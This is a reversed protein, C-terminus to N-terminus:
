KLFTCQSVSTFVVAHPYFSVLSRCLWKWPIFSLKLYNWFVDISGNRGFHVSAQIFHRLKLVSLCPCRLFAARALVAWFWPQRPPIQNSKTDSEIRRATKKKNNLLILFLPIIICGGVFFIFFSSFFMIFLFVNKKCFCCPPNHLIWLILLRTPAFATLTSLNLDKDFVNPSTKIHVLNISFSKVHMFIKRSFTEIKAILCIKSKGENVKKLSVLSISKFISPSFIECASDGSARELFLVCIKAILRTCPTHNEKSERFWLGFSSFKFKM